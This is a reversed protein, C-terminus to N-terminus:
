EVILLEPATAKEKEGPNVAFLSLSDGAQGPLTATFEGTTTALAIAQANSALNVIVIRALPTVSLFGGTVTATGDGNDAALIGGLGAGNEFGDYEGPPSGSPEEANAGTALWPTAEDDDADTGPIVVEVM